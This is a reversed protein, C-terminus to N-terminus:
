AQLESLPRPRGILYGQLYDVGSDLLKQRQEQNEVFEAVVSLSKVKALECISKVIMADMNDTCIDKVFCGDIKVIDAHLQKLREYNAYGSGFDDIAIKFGYERLKQINHVSTESNSFAQEETIEIIVSAPSVAYREFLTIIEGATEKQMLTLPMLNVSFRAYPASAPNVCMWALLHEVVNLDFRASLNFQAIVPIFEDPMIMEGDCMLRTLIEHYGKGESNQIPQAYLMMGGEDLAKRVRNLMMVRGTTQGSVTEQSNTLALVRHEACAKESLWSLQGLMHYLDGDSSELIGWSAGFEINLRTKNWYIKKSNLFDVMYQLRTAAETNQLVLLLESGPIQFLKEGDMLLPQLERTVIRKCHGRMLLGYHRSLFELNDMRLSCVVSQPFRAMHSEFARLNPLGTLPDTLAQYKWNQKMRASHRYIRSMYLMCITFSVLVSLVLALSYGTQVGTLFNRNYALLLFVTAAWGLSILAYSLRSIGATFLIFIVPMLYGAIYDSEYPACLIVLTATLAIIWTVIFPQKKRSLCPKVNRFWFIRAYNPNIVMRMPYYFLMTFIMGASILSLIDLVSCAVSGDGFYTSLSVPFDLYRGAIYMSAKIGLPAIFSLWFIRIGINKSPMGYRWRRGVQWRIIGCIVLVAFVQCFLLVAAQTFSLPHTWANILAFGTVIPLFARRGFLFVLSLMVSLPLWALYVENGDIVARPSIYRSLPVTVLCLLLALLFIKVSRYIENKM